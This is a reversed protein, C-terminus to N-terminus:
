AHGTNAGVAEGRVTNARVTNARVTNARVTNARVSAVRPNMVRHWVPPVLAVLFMAAYGAPLQPASEHHRLIPYPRNALFHHDSHRPLGFLLRGTLLHGSNWSHQPRVREYRDGQRKRELGYHEVYNIVELMVMAVVSQLAFFVVGAVGGLSLAAVIFLAVVLPYRIRRDRWTGAVSQRGAIRTELEWFSRMGGVISRPIFAYLNEGLRASAPDEPTAVRKHHGHVHEVCFHTYSVASLLIEAAARDVKSKRHMLEHAVNIGTGGVIGVSLLLGITEAVTLAGGGVQLLAAGLVAFQVPVWLLTLARYLPNQARRQEESEDANSEDTGILGDALPVLFFVFMPTFFAWLGGFLLAPLVSAPILFAVLYGLANM